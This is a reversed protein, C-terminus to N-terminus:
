ITFPFSFVQFKLFFLSSFSGLSASPCDKRHGVDGLGLGGGNLLFSSFDMGCRGIRLFDLCRTEGYLGWGASDWAEFLYCWRRACWHICTLTSFHDIQHWCQHVCWRLPKILISRFLSLPFFFPLLSFHHDSSPRCSQVDLGNVPTSATSKM